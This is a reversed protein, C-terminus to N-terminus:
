LGVVVRGKSSMDCPTVPVGGDLTRRSANDCEDDEGPDDPYQWTRPADVRREAKAFSIFVTYPSSISTVWSSMAIVAPQLIANTAVTMHRASGPSSIM